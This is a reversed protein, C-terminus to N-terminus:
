LVTEYWGVVVPINWIRELREKFRYNFNVLSGDVCKSRCEM